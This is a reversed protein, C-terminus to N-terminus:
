GGGGGMVGFISTTVDFDGTPVGPNKLIQITTETLATFEKHTGSCYTVLLLIYCHLKLQLPKDNKIM